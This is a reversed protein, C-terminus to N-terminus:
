EQLPFTCNELDPDPDKEETVETVKLFGFFFNNRLEKSIM